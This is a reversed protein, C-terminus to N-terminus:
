PVPAAFILHVFTGRVSSSLGFKNFPMTGSLRLSDRHALIENIKEEYEKWTIANRSNREVFVRTALVSNADNGHLICMSTNCSLFSFINQFIPRVETIGFILLTFIARRSSNWEHCFRKLM